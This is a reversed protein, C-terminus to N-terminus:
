RDELPIFNDIVKGIIRPQDEYPVLIDEYDSNISVLRLRSEERYVKKIYTQDNWDIAYVAGDYDFGSNIILAVSANPYKPEMSDGFVWSALDHNKDKDWTVTDFDGDNIYSYGPGASLKEYVKYTYIPKKTKLAVINDSLQEQAFNLVKTQQDPNLNKWVKLLEQRLTDKSNDQETFYDRDVQLLDAIKDLTLAPLKEIDGKEYRFITSRSVGLENALYDASLKLEKRRAKIKAGIDIM